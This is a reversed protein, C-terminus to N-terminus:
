PHIVNVEPQLTVGFKDKVSERIKMALNWIESGSGGGYNVLVLAQHKHVGINGLTVGKWGCQEILWGAPVKTLGGEGPFTPVHDTKSRIFELTDADVSPNKFFSGANGITAPDPLKSRRIAIVAESVDKVGPSTVGRQALIDKIAGYSTNIVHNRRTLRLTVSSIFYRGKHENKFVSERYGFACAENNFRRTAGTTMDITDVHVITERIEVGYAGINQMPAAGVTGPILSLNEVGGWDREVCYRVFGHWEEGSGVELTVTDEDEAVVNIGKIENKVVLGDFDATLLINSGGGLILIRNNRFEKTGTLEVFEEASSICVFLRALAPIHFTNYPLLDVNAGFHLM